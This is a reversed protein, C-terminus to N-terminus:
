EVANLLQRPACDRGGTSPARFPAKHMEVDGLEFGCYFGGFGYGGVGGRPQPSDLPRGVPEGATPGAGVGEVSDKNGGLASSIVRIANALAGGVLEAVLFALAAGGSM